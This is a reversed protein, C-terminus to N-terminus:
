VDNTINNSEVPAIIIGKDLMPKGLLYTKCSKMQM